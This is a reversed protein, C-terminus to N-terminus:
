HSHIPYGSRGPCNRPLPAQPLSPYQLFIVAQCSPHSAMQEQTCLFDSGPAPAIQASKPAIPV